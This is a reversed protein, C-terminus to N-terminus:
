LHDSAEVVVNPVLVSDKVNLGLIEPRIRASDPCVNEEVTRHDRLGM